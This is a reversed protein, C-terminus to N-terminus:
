GGSVWRWRVLLSFDEAELNWDSVYILALGLASRETTPIWAGVRGTFGPWPMFVLGSNGVHGLGLGVWPALEVFVESRGVPIAWSLGLDLIGWSEPLYEPQSLFNMRYTWRGLKSRWQWEVEPGVSLVNLATASGTAMRLGLSLSKGRGERDEEHWTYRAIGEAFELSPGTYGWFVGGDDFHYVPIDIGAGLRVDVAETIGYGAFVEPVISGGYGNIPLISMGPEVLWHGAGPPHGGSM